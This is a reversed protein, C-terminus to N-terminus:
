EIDDGRKEIGFFLIKGNSYLVGAVGFVEEEFFFIDVNEDKSERYYQHIGEKIAEKNDDDWVSITSLLEVADQFVSFEGIMELVQEYQILPIQKSVYVHANDSLNIVTKAKKVLLALKFDDVPINIVKGLARSYEALLKSFDKSMEVKLINKGEIKMKHKEDAKFLTIMEMEEM